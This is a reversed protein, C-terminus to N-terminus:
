QAGVEPPCWRDRRGNVELARRANAADNARVWEWADATWRFTETHDCYFGHFEAEALEPQAIIDPAVSRGCSILTLCCLAALTM